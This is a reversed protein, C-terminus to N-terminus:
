AGRLIEKAQIRMTNFRNLYESCKKEVNKSDCKVSGSGKGICEFYETTPDNILRRGDYAVRVEPHNERITSEPLHARIDHNPIELSSFAFRTYASFNAGEVQPLGESVLAYESAELMNRPIRIRKLKKLKVLPLLAPFPTKTIVQGLFFVELEILGNLFEFNEIPQKWDLTGDISLYKLNKVDSLGSFDNVKRLNELHLSKLKNLSQLPSLDSFGSVYELVLEELLILNNLFDINKPRAHTIRLRKLGTLQGVSALQEKSPEHLTLEELNPFTKIRAWDLDKKSITIITVNESGSHAGEISYKHREQNPVITWYDNKRDLFDAFHHKM